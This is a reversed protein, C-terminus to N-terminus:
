PIVRICTPDFVAVVIENREVFQIARVGKGLFYNRIALNQQKDGKQATRTVKKIFGKLEIEPPALTALLEDATNNTGFGAKTNAQTLDLWCQIEGRDGQNELRWPNRSLYVACGFTSLHNERPDWGKTRIDVLVATPMTHFWTGDFPAPTSSGAAPITQTIVPVPYPPTAIPM